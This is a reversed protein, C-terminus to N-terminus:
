FKNRLPGIIGGPQGESRGLFIAKKVLIGDIVNGYSVRGGNSYRITSVTREVQTSLPIVDSNSNKVIKSNINENHCICIAHKSQANQANQTNQINQANQANQANIIQSIKGARKGPIIFLSTRTSSM